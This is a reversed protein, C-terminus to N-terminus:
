DVSFGIKKLINPLQKEFERYHPNNIPFDDRFVIPSRFVIAELINKM